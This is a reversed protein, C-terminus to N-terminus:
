CSSGSNMFSCWRNKSHFRIKWGRHIERPRVTIPPYWLKSFYVDMFWSNKPDRKPVLTKVKPWMHRLISSVEIEASTWLHEHFSSWGDFEHTQIPQLRVVRLRIINLKQTKKTFHHSKGCWYDWTTDGVAANTPVHLYWQLVASPILWAM